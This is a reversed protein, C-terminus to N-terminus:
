CTVGCSVAGCCSLLCWVRVATVDVRKYTCGGRLSSITRYVVLLKHFIAIKYKM